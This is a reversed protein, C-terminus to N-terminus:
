SDLEIKKIFHIKGTDQAGDNCQVTDSVPIAYVELCYKLVFLQICHIRTTQTLEDQCSSWIDSFSFVIM